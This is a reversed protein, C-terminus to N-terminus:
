ARTQDPTDVIWLHYDRLERRKGNTSETGSPKAGILLGEVVVGTHELGSVEVGTSAPWTARKGHLTELPLPLFNIQAVTMAQPTEVQASRNKLRNLDPDGGEGQEPCERFDGSQPAVAAPAAGTCLLLMGLLPSLFFIRLGAHRLSPHAM